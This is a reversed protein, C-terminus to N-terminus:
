AGYGDMPSRRGMTRFSDYSDSFRYDTITTEADIFLARAQAEDSRLAQNVDGLLREAFVRTAKRTVYMRAPYPLDAFALHRTLHVKVDSTFVDTNEIRDYLYGGRVGLGAGRRAPEVHVVDADLEIKGTGSHPSLTISFERNFSYGALQVELDVSTLTKQAMSVDSPLPADLSTVPQEGVAMLLESVAEVETLSAM